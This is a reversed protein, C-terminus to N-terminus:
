LLERGVSPRDLWEKDEPLPRLSGRSSAAILSELTMEGATPALVIKDDVISLDIASGVSLGLSKLIAKPISVVSAGGSKRITLTTM